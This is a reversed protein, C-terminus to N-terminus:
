TKAQILEMRLWLLRFIFFILESEVYQFDDFHKFVQELGDITTIDVLVHCLNAFYQSSEHAIYGESDDIKVIFSGFSFCVSVNILVFDTRIVNGEFLRIEEMISFTEPPM